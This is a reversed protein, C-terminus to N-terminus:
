KVEEVQIAKMGDTDIVDGTVTVTDAAHEIARKYAAAKSHDEVMLYLKGDDTLVAMPLGKKRQSRILRLLDIHDLTVVNGDKDAALTQEVADIRHDRGAAEGRQDSGIARALRREDGNERALATRIRALNMEFARGHGGHRAKRERLAAGNQQLVRREVEGEGAFLHHLKAAKGKRARGVLEIVPGGDGGGATERADIGEAM